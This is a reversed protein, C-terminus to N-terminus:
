HFGQGPWGTVIGECSRFAALPHQGQRLALTFSQGSSRYGWGEAGM